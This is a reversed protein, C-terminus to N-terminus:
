NTHTKSAYLYIFTDLCNGTGLFIAGRNPNPNPKPNTKPTSAIKSSPLQGLVMFLIYARLFTLAFSVYFLSLVHPVYFIIARFVRLFIFSLLARAFILARLARM